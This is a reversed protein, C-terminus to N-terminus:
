VLVIRPKQLVPIRGARAVASGCGAVPRAAPLGVTLFTRFSNAGDVRAAEILEDPVTQRLYQTMWFVGFATVLSPVIIAEIQGTWELDAFLIAVTEGQRPELPVATVM